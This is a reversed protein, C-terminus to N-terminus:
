TPLVTKPHFLFFLDHVESLKHLNSWGFFCLIPWDKLDGLSFSAERVIGSLIAANRGASRVEKAANHKEFTNLVMQCIVDEM